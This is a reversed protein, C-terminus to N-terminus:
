KIPVWRTRVPRQYAISQKRPPPALGAKRLQRLNTRRKSAEGLRQTKIPPKLTYAGSVPEGGTDQPVVVKNKLLEPVIFRTISSENPMQVYATSKFMAAKKSGMARQLCQAATCKMPSSPRGKDIDRQNIFITIPSKADKIEGSVDFGVNRLQSKLTRTGTSGM